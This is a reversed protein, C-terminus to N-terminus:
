SEAGDLEIWGMDVMADIQRNAWLEVEIGAGKVEGAALQELAGLAFGTVQQDHGDTVQWTRSM